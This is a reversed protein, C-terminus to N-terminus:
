STSSILIGAYEFKSVERQQAFKTSVHFIYDVTCYFCLLEMKLIVLFKGRSYGLLRPNSGNINVSNGVLEISKRFVFNKIRIKLRWDLIHRSTGPRKFVSEGAPADVIKVPSPLPPPLPSFLPTKQRSGQICRAFGRKPRQRFKVKKM